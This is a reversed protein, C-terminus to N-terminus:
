QKKEPTEIHKLFKDFFAVQTRYEVISNSRKGSGHGEDQWILSDVIGGNDQIAKIIQRAEGVPVRPDNAGHVVLLPTKILSSKHIPSISELFEPDTLPGYEAERLHRRYAATNQLFTVFNAIGVEDVAAAFLDPYETIMGLVVYGGYSGGRIGLKGPETYGNQILWDAAAKYDKLSNKRLKYNDLNMFERGYGSSGRPNPALLGYGNLILYQVNRYFAPLFQSEPGGHAEIVFPIKDGAKYNPPLYLFAPIELSDFSRYRILKPESFLNRDIGAYSSFTLQRLEQSAPNWRWADLTRTPSNFSFVCSGNQDFRANGLQGELPPSPLERNTEIERMKLRMYGDENVLVSMYKYDRSITMEDIEWRPDIWGDSAFEIESTGIKMKALRRIGDANGNCIMTVSKNDPMLVPYDYIVESTDRTIKQSAGTELNVLFLDVDANSNWRSVIIRTGDQSIDSVGKSGGLEASDGFVKRAEGTAIDMRFINFDRGNEENSAYLISRDDKCWVVDTHRISPTNTLQFTQGSRTDMLFLQSQESGGVSAGVIALNGGWSLSFFDVGDAFTTLQYPWGEPTLRFIQDAGSLGSRLFVTQGDWTYGTPSASGIQLFTAIDPVYPERNLLTIAEPVAPSDVGIASASIGSLALFVLLLVKSRM